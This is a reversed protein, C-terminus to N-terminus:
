TSIFNDFDKPMPSTYLHDAGNKDLFGISQAHLFLRKMGKKQLKMNVNQNGYREDGLIPYGLESLHVRIQHTRGTVPQCQILACDKYQNILKVKTLAKKGSKECTVHREGNKRHHTMLPKDIKNEGFRWFGKVLSFYNKKIVGLRFQKHMFRLISRKKSLMLCGSTERDIRHILELNNQDPRAARILEIVGFKIGSGGHVAMGTPKDIVLIDKDEYLIFDLVKECQKLGPSETNERIMVPPMRLEDNEKIKYSPSVRGSNIRVEGRRLIRYVKSRPLSKYKRLIFNDIRQGADDKAINIKKVKTKKLEQKM